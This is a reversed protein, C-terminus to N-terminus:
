RAEKRSLVTATKKPSPGCGRPDILSYGDGRRTLLRCPRDPDPEIKTRLRRVYVDVVRKGELIKDTRWLETILKDRSIVQGPHQMFYVLVAFETATLTIARSDVSVERADLDALLPGLCLIQHPQTEGRSNRLVSNVRAILERTSFPKTIYDDAGLELARVKDSEGARASLMIKRIGQMSKQEELLRLLDLGDQDPLMGDLLILLPIQDVAAEAVGRAAHFTRTHFGCRTLVHSVLSSVDRDDEVIFVLGSGSEAQTVM